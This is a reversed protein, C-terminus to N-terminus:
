ETSQANSGTSQAGRDGSWASKRLLRAGNLAVLVTSGEHGAVALPLPLTGILDWTVLTLIVTAAICLNAIVYRRALRSLRILAPVATLDDRVIIADATQVALDAGRRGMAIGTGAAMLAPADNIGDGVVLVHGEIEGVIRVKDEPLLDAHVERIGTRDAVDAAVSPRDGTLLLVSGSTVDGILRVAEAADDRLRDVLEIRGIERGDVLVGVVTGTSGAVTREVTVRRGGVAGTVGRGPLARFGEVSEVDLGRDAAATVIARGLPHESPYEVAAALALVQSPDHGDLAAVDVVQPRGETLTGTKDFAVVSTRGVSEMVAASKVLVGHRGANAISALLPPMTSLVVACPSAVIMFVIARLLAEDFTNGFLMVPIGLVLLTAVVVIVSYTQEVKEIFLQTPAKTESAEAVLTAIRAIASESAPRAVEVILAGTGNVTGSLVDDGAARVIPVSEGTVAQQDVESRGDVVVGDAGVREGPRVLIRQGVELERCDIERTTGDPAYLTAREPALGLLATVSDATRQTVVVELAGSTAFIVILLAGDFVQGISAAAVAAVIMLLDVDLRRGRLEQLGSRTPEWGGALYCALYATWWSWEPAQSIQLLWGALFLALALGAWRVEPLRLGTRFISPPTTGRDAGTLTSDRATRETTEATGM